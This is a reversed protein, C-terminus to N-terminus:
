KQVFCQKMYQLSFQIFVWVVIIIAIAQLFFHLISQNLSYVATGIQQLVVIYVTHFPQVCWTLVQTQFWQIQQDWYHTVELHELKSHKTDQQVHINWIKESEEMFRDKREMENQFLPFLYFGNYLTGSYKNWQNTTSELYEALSYIGVDGNKFIERITMEYQILLDMLYRGKEQFIQDPNYKPMKKSTKTNKRDNERDGFILVNQLITKLFPYSPIEYQITNSTKNYYMHSFRNLEFSCLQLLYNDRNQRTTSELEEDIFFFHDDGNYIPESEQKIMYNSLVVLPNYQNMWDITSLTETTDSEFSYYQQNNSYHFQDQQLDFPLHNSKYSFTDECINLLLKHTQVNLKNWKKLLTYEIYFSTFDWSYKSDTYYFRNMTNTEIKTFSPITVEERSFRQTMMRNYELSWTESIINANYPYNKCIMLLHFFSFILNM